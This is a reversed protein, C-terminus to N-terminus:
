TQGAPQVGGPETHVLVRLIDPFRRRLRAELAEAAKHASELSTAGDFVAHVSVFLRRGSRLVRLDHLGKIEPLGDAMQAIIPHILAFSQPDDVADDAGSVIPDLHVNIQPARPLARRIDGELPQVLAHAERLSLGSPVEVHLDVSVRDKGEHIALDHITLSRRAALGRVTRALDPWTAVPELHVVIDSRPYLARVRDEVRDAIQHGADVSSAGDIVSVIDVFQEAGSRRVRVRRCELVGPVERAAAAITERMGKPVRDILVDVSDRVLKISLVVVIVVVGLAAFADAREFWVGGGFRRGLGVLVLGVFVVGSSLMDTSFHLADAELAQSKYQRAARRLVRSRSFDVAISILVVVFAFVTVDVHVSAVLLRRVAENVIWACTLLLLLTEALASINEIRQHGYNHDEDPPKASARVAFYTMIAAGLDLASHAAEALIGLSGTLVGAALKLLTLFLGAFVSTLAVRRKDRNESSRDTLM